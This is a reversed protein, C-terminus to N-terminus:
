QSQKRKPCDPRKHGEENCEYCVVKNVTGTPKPRHNVNKVWPKKKTTPRDSHSMLATSDYDHGKLVRRASEELLAIKVEDSPPTKKKDRTLMMILTEYTEDVGNMLVFSLYKDEITEGMDILKRHTTLVSNVFEKMSSFQSQRSNFLRRTLDFVHSMSSGEYAAQLSDWAKKSSTATQVHVYCTSQVTLCIKALARSDKEQNKDTVPESGDVINWLGELMLSMKMAFKWTSYNTQGELKEINPVFSSVTPVSM